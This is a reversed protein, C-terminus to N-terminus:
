DIGNVVRRRDRYGRRGGWQLPPDVAGLLHAPVTCARLRRREGTSRSAAPRSLRAAAKKRAIGARRPATAPKRARRRDCVDLRSRQRPVDAEFKGDAVGRSMCGGSWSECVDAEAVDVSGGRAAVTYGGALGVGLVVWRGRVWDVTWRLSPDVRPMLVEYLPMYRDIKATRCPPTRPM